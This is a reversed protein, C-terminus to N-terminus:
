KEKVFYLIHNLLSYSMQSKSELYIYLFVVPLTRKQKWELAPCEVSRQCRPSKKKAVKYIKKWNKKEFKEDVDELVSRHM